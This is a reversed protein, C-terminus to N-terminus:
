IVSERFRFVFLFLILQITYRIDRYVINRSLLNSIM